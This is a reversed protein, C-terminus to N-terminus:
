CSLIGSCLPMCLVGEMMVVEATRVAHMILAINNQM